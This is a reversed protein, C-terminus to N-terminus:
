EKTLLDAIPLKKIKQVSISSILILLITNITVLVFISSFIDPPFYMLLYKEAMIKGLFVGTIIILLFLIFIDIIYHTYIFSNRAGTACLIAYLKERQKLRMLLYGTFVLLYICALGVQTYKFTTTQLKGVENEEALLVDDRWEITINKESGLINFISEESFENNKLKIFMSTFEIPLDYNEKVTNLVTSSNRYEAIIHPGYQSDHLIGSIVYPVTYQPHHFSSWDIKITDGIKLNLRDAISITIVASNQEYSGKRLFGPNDPLLEAVQDVNKVFSVRAQMKKEDQNTIVLGDWVDVCAVDAVKESNILKNYDQGFLDGSIEVDYEATKYPTLRMHEYSIPLTYVVVMVSFLLSLIIYQKLYSVFNQRLEKLILWISVISSSLKVM